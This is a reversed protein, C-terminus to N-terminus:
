QKESLTKIHHLVRLHISHIIYDSWWQWYFTPGIKHYYWTTGKLLTHGNPLETLLFQGKKSVFYNHLHPTDIQGYPTLEQMPEPQEEVTFQLLRNEQWLTIPEVFTGTTFRCYRVAGVGSGIIEAKIPYAIGTKFLLEKPEQLTPFALVHQWVTQPSANIEIQTRIATLEPEQELSSEVSMFTPVLLTLMPLYIFLPQRSTRNLKKQLSYGIVAGICTFLATIPAAMVLCIVGEIAFLLILLSLIGISIFSVATCQSLSKPSAYGYLLSSTIGIFLPLVVFLGWVYDKLIDISFFAFLFSLSAVLLVVISASGLKSELITMKM